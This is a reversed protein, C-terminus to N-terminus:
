AEFVQHGRAALAERCGAAEQARVWFFAGIRETPFVFLLCARYPEATVVYDVGRETLHDEVRRAERLTRSVHVLELEEDGLEEPARRV